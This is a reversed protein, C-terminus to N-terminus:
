LNSGEQIYFPYVYNQRSNTSRIRYDIRIMIIGETDSTPELTIKEVDIRPEHYLIATRVLDMIYTKLGTDLNEFVLHELNCGFTPQMIREGIKTSLLIELSSKIDEEDQLMGVAKAGKSFTPPFGWGRGLFSIDDQNNM